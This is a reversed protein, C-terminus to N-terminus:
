RFCKLRITLADEADRAIVGRVEPGPLRPYMGTGIGINRFRLCKHVKSLLTDYDTVLSGKM